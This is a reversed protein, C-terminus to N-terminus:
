TTLRFTSCTGLESAQNGDTDVWGEGRLAYGGDSIGNTSFELYYGENDPNIALGADADIPLDNPLQWDSVGLYVEGNMADIWDHATQWTMGGATRGDSRIDAIGFTETAALNANALWTIDLETDYYAEFNSADGNLDRGVLEAEVSSAVSFVFSACLIGFSLKEASRM